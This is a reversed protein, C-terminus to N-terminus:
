AIEALKIIERKEVQIVVVEALTANSCTMMKSCDSLKNYATQCYQQIIKEAGYIFAMFGM